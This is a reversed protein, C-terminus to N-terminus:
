TATKASGYSLNTRIEVLEDDPIQRTSHGDLGCTTLSFGAQRHAVHALLDRFSRDPDRFRDVVDRHFRYLDASAFVRSPPAAEIRSAPLPRCDPV